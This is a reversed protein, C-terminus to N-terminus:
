FKNKISVDLHPFPVEIGAARFAKEVGFRLDSKVRPELRPNALWGMLRFDLASEGFDEFFVIPKPEPLIDPHEEAVKILTDRVLETDSGYAVGVNIRIRYYRLEFARNVVVETIFKGNPIIVEIDDYTNIVTARARIDRVTGQVDAVEVFDGKRIPRELLLILGSVFNQAITQLGFGIGVLLVGGVAALATLSIGINDVALFIGLAIITYHLLRNLAYQVGVDVDRRRYVGGLARQILASAVFAFAIFGIFTLISAITVPTGGIAFLPEGVQEIVPEFNDALSDLVEVSDTQMVM